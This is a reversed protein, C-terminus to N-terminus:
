SAGNTRGYHHRLSRGPWCAPQVKLHLCHAAANGPPAPVSDQSQHQSCLSPAAECRWGGGWAWLWTESVCDRLLAQLSPSAPVATRLFELLSSSPHAQMDPWTVNWRPQGWLRQIRTCGQAAAVLQPPREAERLWLGRCSHLASLALDAERPLEPYCRGQSMSRFWM